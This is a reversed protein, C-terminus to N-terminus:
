ILPDIYLLLQFGFVGNLLVRLVELKKPLLINRQFTHIVWVDLCFKYNLFICACRHECFGCYDLYPFRFTWWCIFPYLLYPIYIYHFVIWGYFFVDHRQLLMSPGLSEWVLSLLDSLSFCIDYSIVYIHFRFYSM